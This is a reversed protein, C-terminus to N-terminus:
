LGHGCRSRGDQDDFVLRQQQQMDAERELIGTIVHDLRRIGVLRQDRQVAMRVNARDEGIDRHRTREVPRRQRFADPPGIRADRHQHRRPMLGKGGGVQGVINAEDGLRIDPV